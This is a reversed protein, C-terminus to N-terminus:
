ADNGRSIIKNVTAKAYHRGNFYCVEFKGKNKGRMIERANFVPKFQSGVWAFDISKIDSKEM